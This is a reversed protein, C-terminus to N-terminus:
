VVKASIQQKALMKFTQDAASITREIDEDSHATSMFGAEYAAPALYVGEDLMIHFFQKFQEIDCAMMEDFTHIAPKDTFFFGFMGCAHQTLFPIGHRKAAQEMGECLKSTKEALQEHFGPQQVLKLSALGAATAIPNGSLTGAQYVPGEPSLMSMIDARGGFAGVPMGGGIVKGLTTMDPKINYLQQAGGLSVRFGTMVEDFILLTGHEDCLDRLGQLFGPKPLICNMNGTIPELIIAAVQKPNNELIQKVHELNNYDALLTDAVTEPPVGPSNPTGFTLAGSGAAVLFPDAHGHYCGVFKIIKNRKTFARALRVASMTAETGSNVMRVKEISPMLKCVEEAIEVERATPAGYSLGQKVAAEVAQLIDPHNHGGIMPGWSGVYDIYQNDDADIFKSGKAQKIFIPTGGVARFARVPSNVGGPIFQNADKFLKQSLSTNM